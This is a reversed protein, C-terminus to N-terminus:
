RLMFKNVSKEGAGKFVAMYLGDAVVSGYSNKRDWMTRESATLSHVKRGNMAYIHLRGTVNKGTIFTVKGAHQVIKLPSQKPSRTVMRNIIGVVPEATLSVNDLSVLATSGGLFFEIRGDVDEPATFIWSYKKSTTPLDFTSDALVVSPDDSDSVKVRMSRQGAAHCDFSFHYEEGEIIQLSNQSFVIDEPKEGADDMSVKLVEDRIEVSAAAGNSLGLRNWGELGDAFKGNTVVEGKKLPEGFSNVGFIFSKGLISDTDANKIRIFCTQSSIQPVVWDTEGFNAIEEKIVEWAQGSDSSFEATVNAVELDNWSIRFEEGSKLTANLSPSTIIFQSADTEVLSVNDIFVSSSDGACNFEVRIDEWATETLFSTTYTKKSETINVPVTDGGYVTWPAGDPGINAYIQKASSAYADFSFTYVKGSELSIGSQFLKIQWSEPDDFGGISDIRYEGDVVAGRAHGGVVDLDWEKAQGAFQGNDIKEGEVVVGAEHIVFSDSTDAANGEVDSIAILCQDGAANEPISWTFEKENSASGVVTSWDDGGNNSFTIEVESIDGSNSWEIKQEEGTLWQSQEDPTYVYIMPDTSVTLQVSDILVTADSDVSTIQLRLEANEDTEAKMFFPVSYMRSKTELSIEGLDSDSYIEGNGNVLQASVTTNLDTASAYFKLTYAENQILPIGSQVVDPGASGEGPSTIEIYARESVVEVTSNSGNEELRWDSFGNDFHGNVVLNEQASVGFAFVLALGASLLYKM